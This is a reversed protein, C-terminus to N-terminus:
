CRLWAVFSDSRFTASSRNLRSPNALTVTVSSAASAPTAVVLASAIAASLLCTQLKM